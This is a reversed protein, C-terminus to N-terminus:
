NPAPGYRKIIEFPDNAQILTHYLEWGTQIIRDFWAHAEGSLRADDEDFADHCLSCLLDDLRTLDDGHLTGGDELRPLEQRELSELENWLDVLWDILVRRGRIAFCDRTLEAHFAAWGENLERRLAVILLLAARAVPDRLPESAGSARGARTKRPGRHWPPQPTACQNDTPQSM